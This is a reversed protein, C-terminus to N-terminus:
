NLKPSVFLLLGFLDVGVFRLNSSISESSSSISTFGVADFLIM